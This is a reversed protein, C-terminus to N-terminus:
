KCRMVSVSNVRLIAVPVKCQLLTAACVIVFNDLSGFVAMLFALTLSPM